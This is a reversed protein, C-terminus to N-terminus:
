KEQARRCRPRLARAAFQMDLHAVSLASGDGERAFQDACGVLKSSCELRSRVTVVDRLIEGQLKCASNERLLTQAM